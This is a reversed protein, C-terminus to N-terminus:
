TIDGSNRKFNINILHKFREAKKQQAIYKQIIVFANRTIHIIITFVIDTLIAFLASVVISFFLLDLIQVIAVGKKYHSATFLLCVIIAPVYANGILKVLAFQMIARYVIEEVSSSLLNRILEKNMMKKLRFDFHVKKLMLNERNLETGVILLSVSYTIYSIIPALIIRLQISHFLDFMFACYIVCPFFNLPLMIRLSKSPIIKFCRIVEVGLAAIAAFYLVVDKM